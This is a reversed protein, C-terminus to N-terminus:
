EKPHLRMIKPRSGRMWSVIQDFFGYKERFADRIRQRLADDEVFEVRLPYSVEGARLVLEPSRVLNEGWRTGGTRVIGAGDVVVLWVTTERSEGDEDATVVVVTEVERLSEWDPAEARALPPALLALAIVLRPLLRRPM